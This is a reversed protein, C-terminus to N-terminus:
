YMHFDFFKIPYHPAATGGRGTRPPMTRNKEHGLGTRLATRLSEFPRTSTSSGATGGGAEEIILNNYNDTSNSSRCWLSFAGPIFSRISGGKNSSGFVTSLM